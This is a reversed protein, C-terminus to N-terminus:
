ARVVGAARLFRKSNPPPPPPMAPPPTLTWNKYVSYPNMNCLTLNIPLKYCNPNGISKTNTVESFCKLITIHPNFQELNYTPVRAQALIETLYENLKEFQGAQKIKLVGLGNFNALGELQIEEETWNMGLITTEILNCIEQKEAHNSRLSLITIHLKDLSIPKCNSNNACIERQTVSINQKLHNNELACSLFM